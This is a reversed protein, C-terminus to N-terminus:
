LLRIGTWANKQRHHSSGGPRRSRRHDPANIVFKTMHNDWPPSFWRTGGAGLRSGYPLPGSVVGLDPPNKPNVYQVYHRRFRLNLLQGIHECEGGLRGIVPGSQHVSHESRSVFPTEDKDYGDDQASQIAKPTGLCQRIGSPRQDAVRRQDEGHIGG